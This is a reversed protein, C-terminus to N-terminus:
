IGTNYKCLLEIMDERDREVAFELATMNREGRIRQDAGQKLFLQAAFHQNYLVAVILPTHGFNNQENLGEICMSKIVNLQPTGGALLFALLRRDTPEASGALVHLANDGLRDQALPDAGNRVLGKIIEEKDTQFRIARTHLLLQFVSDGAERPVARNADIGIPRGIRSASIEGNLCATYLARPELVGNILSSSIPRRVQATKEGDLSDLDGSEVITSVSSCSAPWCDTPSAM